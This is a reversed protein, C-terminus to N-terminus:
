PVEYVLCKVIFISLHRATQLLFRLQYSSSFDQNEPSNRLTSQHNSIFTESAMSGGDEPNFKM